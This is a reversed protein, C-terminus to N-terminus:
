QNFTVVHDYNEEEDGHLGGLCYDAHITKMNQREEVYEGGEEGYTIHLHEDMGNPIMAIGLKSTRDFSEHKLEEVVKVLDPHSRFEVTEILNNTDYVHTDDFVMSYFSRYKTGEVLETDHDFHDSMEARYEELTKKTILESNMGILMIIAKPSLGFSPYGLICKKFGPKRAWFKAQIGTWEGYCKTCIASNTDWRQPNFHQIITDSGCRDCTPM